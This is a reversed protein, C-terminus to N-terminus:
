SVLLSFANQNMNITSLIVLMLILGSAILVKPFAPKRSFDKIKDILENLKM